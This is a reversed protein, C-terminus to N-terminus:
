SVKRLFDVRYYDEVTDDDVEIEVVSGVLSPLIEHLENMDNIFVGLTELEKRLYPMSKKVLPSSKTATGIEEDDSGAELLLEIQRNGNESYGIDACVLRADYIGSGLPGAYKTESLRYARNLDSLNIRM